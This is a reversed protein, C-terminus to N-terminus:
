EPDEGGVSEWANDQVYEVQRDRRLQQV